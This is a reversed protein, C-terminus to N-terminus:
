RGHAYASRHHASHFSRRVALDARRAAVSEAVPAVLEKRCMFHTWAFSATVAPVAVMIGTMILNGINPKLLGAAAMAGPHPPILCHISYLGAALMTAMQIMPRGTRQVLSKNLGSLVIFGSNCFIPIGVIFGTLGVALGANKEGTLRLLARALSITAGTKDLLVGIMVGLIIIIGITKMTSGFGATVIPVVDHAPLTIIALMLSIVFMSLFTNYKLISTLVVILLISIVVLSLLCAFSM